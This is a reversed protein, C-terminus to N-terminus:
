SEVYIPMRNAKLLEQWFEQYGIKSKLSKINPISNWHQTREKSKQIDFGTYTESVFQWKNHYVQLKVPTKCCREWDCSKTNQLVPKYRIYMLIIPEYLESHPLLNDWGLVVSFTVADNKTNYKVVYDKALFDENDENIKHWLNNFLDLQKKSLKSKLEKINSKYAYLSGAVKKIM